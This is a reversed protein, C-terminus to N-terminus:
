FNPGDDVGKEEAVPPQAGSGKPRGRRKVPVVVAPAEVSRRGARLVVPRGPPRIPALVDELMDAVESGPLSYSAERVWKALAAKFDSM